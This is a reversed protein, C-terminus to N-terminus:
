RSAAILGAPDVVELMTDLDLKLYMYQVMFCCSAWWVMVPQLMLGPSRRAEPVIEPGTLEDFIDISLIIM